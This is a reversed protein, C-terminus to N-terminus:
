LCSMFFSGAVFSFFNQCTGSRATKRRCVSPRKKIGFIKAVREIIKTLTWREAKLRCWREMQESAQSLVKEVFDSDGKARRFEIRVVDAGQYKNVTWELESM